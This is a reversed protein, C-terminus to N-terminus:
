SAAEGRGCHRALRGIAAMLVREIVLSCLIVVVTWAFLDCTEMYQKAESLYRGISVAPVTLVEAAVGAKWALGMATCCASLFYPAVAPLWVRRLTKTWTFRFVKATRLLLPDVSRIGASVNGWVVPLAMLIVVVAPLVDRGVWLILLLIFSAVPTSKVMTLLPACLANLLSFRCCLAALLVGLVVALATGWLIRLLSASVTLWFRGTRALEALRLAVPWPGPLLLPQDVAVSLLQWVLLWFGAVACARLRNKAKSM